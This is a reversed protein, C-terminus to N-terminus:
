AAEMFMKTPFITGRIYIIIRIIRNNVYYVFKRKLDFTNGSGIDTATLGINYHGRYRDRGGGSRYENKAPQRPM